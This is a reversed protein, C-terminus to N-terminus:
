HAILLESVSVTMLLPLQSSFVPLLLGALSYQQMEYSDTGTANKCKPASSELPNNEMITYLM